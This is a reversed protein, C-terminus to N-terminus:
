PREVPLDVVFRAGGGPNDEVRVHGGHWHVHRAVIALGLGAGREDTRSSGRAFREFIRDRQDAPVGRGRDEISCRVGDATAEVLVRDCGGGHRDANEVLNSMVQELRRKDADIEIERASAAVETVPRGAAADAAHRVLDGIRVRERPRGDDHGYSRSIELLDDIMRRFRALDGSLLDVAEKADAPLEHHRNQLLQLSNLMTTLPTRLEHSVDGAFRADAQVRQQLATTTENFSSALGALDPDDGVDLRADLDGRAVSAAAVTIETLPRLARGTAFRGLAVGLGGTALAAVVLTLALIRATHDLEALPFIEFYAGDGSSLPLGVALMPAGDIEIRQRAPTGSLVLDRLASPLAGPGVRLSSAYWQGNVVLLSSTDNAAPLSTLLPGLPAQREDGLERQVARAHTVSQALTSGERQVTLYRTLLTWVVAALLISLAFTGAGFALTVRARLGPRRVRWRRRRPQPSAHTAM